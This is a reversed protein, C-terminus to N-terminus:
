DVKETQSWIQKQTERLFEASSDFRVNKGGMEAQRGKEARAGKCIEEHIVGVM